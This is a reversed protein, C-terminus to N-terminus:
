EEVEGTEEADTEASVIPRGEDDLDPLQGVEAIEAYVKGNSGLFLQVNDEFPYATGDFEGIEIFGWDPKCDPTPGFTVAEHWPFDRIADVAREIIQADQHLQHRKLITTISPARLDPLAYLAVLDHLATQLEPWTPVAKKALTAQLAQLILDAAESTPCDALCEVGGQPLHGYVSWMRANPDDWECKEYSRILDAPMEIPVIKNRVDLGVVANTEYADYLISDPM